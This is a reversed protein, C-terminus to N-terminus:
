TVTDSAGVQASYLVGAVKLPEALGAVFCAQVLLQAPVKFAVALEALDNATAEDVTIIYPIQDDSIHTTM